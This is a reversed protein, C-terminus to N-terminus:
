VPLGYAARELILEAARAGIDTKAMEFPSKNELEPHPRFMFDNAGQSTGIADKAKARLGVLRIIREATGHKFFSNRRFTADPVIASRIQAESLPVQPGRLKFVFSKIARKPIGTELLRGLDSYSQLPEKFSNKGGLLEYISAVSATM